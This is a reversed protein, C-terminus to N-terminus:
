EIGAVEAASPADTMLIDAWEQHLERRRDLYKARNYAGAVKDKPVHALAFDIIHSEAPYRENMVTSFSARFGHAVHEGHYGVRNILFGIANESMPRQHNRKNPFVYHSRGTIQRLVRITDIAQAPLPITFDWADDGKMHLRLKMREAPITWVPAAADEVGAFEPWPTRRFAGPRPVTIAILRTALKVVPSADAAETARLLGRLKDLDVLAPQKRKTVPRLAGRVLAAPNTTALGSSIAHLYVEGVRQCVRHATEIAPRAEIRRLEALLMPATIDDPRLKGLAQFIHKELSRIVEAAHVDSWTPLQATHWERAIEEFSAGGAAAAKRQKKDLAPDKNDRLLAKAKRREERADALSVDPYPGISLLKEKGAFRYKLRWLKAGSTPIFLHLGEGDFLKIPKEGPKAKRIQTDTLM